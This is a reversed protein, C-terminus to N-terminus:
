APLGAKRLGDVLIALNDPNRIPLWDTFNSLRLDPALKRVHEMARQADAVRESFAHCAALVAAVLLFSPL